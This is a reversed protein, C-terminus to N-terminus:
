FLHIGITMRWFKESMTWQLYSIWPSAIIRVQNAYDKKERLIKIPSFRYLCPWYYIPVIIIFVSPVSEARLSQNWASFRKQFDTHRVITNQYKSISAKVIYWLCFGLFVCNIELLVICITVHCYQYVSCACQLTRGLFDISSRSTLKSFFTMPSRCLALMYTFSFSLSISLGVIIIKVDLKKGVLDNPVGGVVRTYAM